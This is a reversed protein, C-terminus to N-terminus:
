IRVIRSIVYQPSLILFVLINSPYPLFSYLRPYKIGYGLRKYFTNKFTHFENDDLKLTNKARELLKEFLTLLHPLGDMKTFFRISLRKSFFMNLLSSETSDHIFHNISEFQMLSCAANQEQSYQQSQQQSHRRVNLHFIPCIGVNLRNLILRATVDFDEAIRHSENFGGISKMAKTTFALSPHWIPCLGLLISSLSYGYNKINTTARTLIKNNENIVYEYSCIVPISKNSELFEIQDRIRTPLSVDDQDQRIIYPTYTFGLAKNFSKSVGLNVENRILKIRKDKLSKLFAYSGDQSCDDIILYIYDKYDQKLISYVSEKLFPMGNYVLTLVTVSPM